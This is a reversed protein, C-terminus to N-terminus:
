HKSPLVVTTYIIALVAVVIIALVSWVPLPGVTQEYWAEEAAESPPAVAAPTWTFTFTNLGKITSLDDMDISGEEWDITSGAKKIVLTDYNLNPFYDEFDEDTPDLIWSVDYNTEFDRVKITTTYENDTDDYENDIINVYPGRKQYGATLYTAPTSQNMYAFSLTPRSIAHTPYTTLFTVNYLEVTTNEPDYISINVLVRDEVAYWSGTYTDGIYVDTKVREQINKVIGTASDTVFYDNTVELDDMRFSINICVGTTESANFSWNVYDVNHDAVTVYVNEEAGALINTGDLEKTGNWTFNVDIASENGNYVTFTINTLENIAAPLTINGSMNDYATYDDYARSANAFGVSVNFGTIVVDDRYNYWTYADAQEPLAMVLISAALLVGMAFAKIQRKDKM